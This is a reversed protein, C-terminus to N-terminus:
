QDEEPISVSLRNNSYEHLGTVERIVSIWAPIFYAEDESNLEIELVAQRHWFPYIDIELLHEGSPYVYRTKHVPMKAPDARKLLAAYEDACIERENEISSVPSIRRKSTHYYKVGEPFKRLRVRETVGPECILYTQTIESRQADSPIDIPLSILFKRETEISM